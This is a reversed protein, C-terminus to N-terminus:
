WVRLSAASELTLQQSPPWIHSRDVPNSCIVRADRQTHPLNFRVLRWPFLGRAGESNSPGHNNLSGFRTQLHWRPGFQLAISYSLHTPHSDGPATAPLLWWVALLWASHLRFEGAIPVTHTQKGSETFAPFIWYKYDPLPNADPSPV